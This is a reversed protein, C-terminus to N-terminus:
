PGGEKVTTTGTKITATTRPEERTHPGPRANYNYKKEGDRETDGVRGGPKTRLLGSLSGASM